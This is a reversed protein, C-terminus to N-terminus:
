MEVKFDKDLIVCMEQGDISYKAVKIGNVTEITPMIEKAGNAKLLAASDDGLAGYVQDNWMFYRVVNKM